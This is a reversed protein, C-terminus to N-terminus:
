KQLKVHLQTFAEGQLPFLRRRKGTPELELGKGWGGAGKAVFVKHNTM